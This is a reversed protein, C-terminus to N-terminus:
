GIGPISVINFMSILLIAILSALVGLLLTRFREYWSQVRSLRDTTNLLQMLLEIEFYGFVVLYVAALEPQLPQLDFRTLGDTWLVYGIVGVIGVGSLLKLREEQVRQKELTEKEEVLDGHADQVRDDFESETLVLVADESRGVVRDLFTLDEFNPADGPNGAGDSLVNGQDYQSYLRQWANSRLDDIVATAAGTEVHRAVEPWYEEIFWLLPFLDSVDLEDLDIRQLETRVAECVASDYGSQELRVPELYSLWVIGPWEPDRHDDLVTAFFTGYEDSWGFTRVGVWGCYVYLPTGFFQLEPDKIREGARSEYSNIERDLEEKFVDAVLELIERGDPRSDFYAAILGLAAFESQVVRDFDQDAVWRELEDDVQALEDGADAHTQLARGVCATALPNGFWGPRERHPDYQDHVARHLLLKLDTADSAGGDTVPVM